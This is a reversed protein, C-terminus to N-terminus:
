SARTYHFFGPSLSARADGLGWTRRAIKLALFRPPVIKRGKPTEPPPSAPRKRGSERRRKM